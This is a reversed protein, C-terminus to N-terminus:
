DATAAPRTTRSKLGSYINVAVAGSCALFVLHDPVVAAHSGVLRAAYSTPARRCQNKGKTNTGKFYTPAGEGSMFSDGMAVM